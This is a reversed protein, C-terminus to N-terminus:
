CPEQLVQFGMLGLFVLVDKPVWTVQIEGPDQLDQQDLQALM